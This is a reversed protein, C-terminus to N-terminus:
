RPTTRTLNEMVNRAREQDSQFNSGLYNSFFFLKLVVFILFLKISIIKWLSRGLVMSRFGDRYFVYLHSALSPM